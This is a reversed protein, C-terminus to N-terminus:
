SIGERNKNRAKALLDDIKKRVEQIEFPKTLFDSAGFSMADHFTKEDNFATVMIIPLLSYEPTLRIKRSLSIGDEGPMGIDMLVIDPGFSKIENWLEQESSAVSVGYGLIELGTKIMESVTRDDDVVLVRQEVVDQGQDEVPDARM